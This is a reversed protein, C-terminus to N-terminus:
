RVGNKRLFAELPKRQNMAANNVSTSLGGRLGGRNGRCCRRRRLRDFACRERRLREALTRRAAALKDPQPWEFRDAVGSPWARALALGASGGVTVLARAGTLDFPHGDSGVAVLGLVDAHRRSRGPRRRAAHPRLASRAVGGRRFQRALKGQALEIREGAGAFIVTHEGIVDGRTVGRFLRAESAGATVGDRSYVATEALARGAGQAAAEGLRLATGSACRSEPQSADGPDRREYASGLRRAANEVLSLLVNVGVSM